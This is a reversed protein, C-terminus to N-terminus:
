LIEMDIHIDHPATNTGGYYPYLKYGIPLLNPHRFARAYMSPKYLPSTVDHKDVTFQYFENFIEINVTYEENIHIYGLTINEHWEQIRQWDRYIYALLEIMNTEADHRWGFRASNIHHHGFSLGVLKNIPNYLPDAKTQYLIIVSNNLSEKRCVCYFELM